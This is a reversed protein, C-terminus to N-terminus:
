DKDAQELTVVEDWLPCHQKTWIHEVLASKEVEGQRTAAQHDKLYMGLARQVREWPQIVNKEIYEASEKGGM